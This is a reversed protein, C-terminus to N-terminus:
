QLLSLDQDKTSTVNQIAFILKNFLDDRSTDSASKNLHMKTVDQKRLMLGRIFDDNFCSMDITRKSSLKKISLLEVYVDDKSMYDKRIKNRIM